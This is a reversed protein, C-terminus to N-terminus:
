GLEESKSKIFGEIGEENSINARYGIASGNGLINGREGIIVAKSVLESDVLSDLVIEVKYNRQRGGYIKKGGLNSQYLSEAVRRPQFYNFDESDTTMSVLEKLVDVTLAIDRIRGIADEADDMKGSRIWGKFVKDNQESEETIVFVFAKYVRNLM